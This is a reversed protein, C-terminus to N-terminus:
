NVLDTKLYIIRFNGTDVIGATKFLVKEEGYLWTGNIGWFESAPFVKTIPVYAIDGDTKSHDVGGFSLEGSNAVGDKVSVPEFFVGLVANSITKHKFLNDVVTPVLDGSPSLTGATLGVPGLSFIFNLFVGLSLFLHPPGLFATLVVLSVVRRRQLM